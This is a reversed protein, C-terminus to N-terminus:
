IKSSGNWLFHGISTMKIGNIILGDPDPLKKLFYLQLPQQPLHPQLPASTLSAATTELAQFIVISSKLTM